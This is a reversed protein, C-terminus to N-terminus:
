GGIMWSMQRTGTHDYGSKLSNVGVSVEDIKMDGNVTLRDDSYIGGSAKSSRSRPKDKIRVRELNGYERVKSKWFCM